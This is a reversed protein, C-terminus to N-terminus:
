RLAERLKRDARGAAAIGQPGDFYALQEDYDTSRLTAILAHRLATAELRTLKLCLAQESETM